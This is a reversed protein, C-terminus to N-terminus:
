AFIDLMHLSFRLNDREGKIIPGVFRIGAPNQFNQPVIVNPGCEKKNPFIRIIEPVAGPLNDVFTMHHAIM